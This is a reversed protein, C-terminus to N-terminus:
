ALARRRASRHKVRDWLGVFGGPLLYVIALFSLGLLLTTQNPFSSSIAEWLLTFPIVGVLPGWLRGTGGLLAMIVVQFSLMPTFATSPEIYVYRPAIIAGVVAAVAGSVIFLAVKSLATNIGVHRAVDEDDGIIRLAFGLRSRGVAWGILFVLGALAVLQWYIDNDTLDTLVYTGKHGTKNQYWTVVQRTMEALGLTFIVFYVGSLRLTALGVLAALVGGVVAAIPLLTWYPLHDIGAGTVYTGVGFFAATALSIYHTPGSFLAWSTALVTYMAITVGLSILYGDGTLPLLAALVLLAAGWALNSLDGRKM